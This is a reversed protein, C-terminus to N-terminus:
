HSAAVHCLSILETSQSWRSPHSLSPPLSVCSPPSIPIYTYTYSIWKTICCFSVCPQLAIISWYLHKFFFKNNWLEQSHILQGWGERQCHAEWPTFHVGLPGGGANGLAAAKTEALGTHIEMKEESHISPFPNALPVFLWSVPTPSPPAVTSLLNNKRGKTGPFIHGKTGLFLLSDSTKLFLPISEVIEAVQCQCIHCRVLLSVSINIVVLDTYRLCLPPNKEAFTM